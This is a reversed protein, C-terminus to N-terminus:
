KKVLNSLQKGFMAAVGTALGGILGTVLILVFPDGGLPLLIAIKKALIFNNVSSLMYAYIVFFLFVALFPVFFVAAKKLSFFLASVFGAVMISWWPLYLSLLLAIILTIVFNLINTKM